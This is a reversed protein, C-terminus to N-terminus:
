LRDSRTSTAGKAVLRASVNTPPIDFRKLMLVGACRAKVTINPTQKVYVLYHIGRPHNLCILTIYGQQELGGHTAYPVAASRKEDVQQECNFNKKVSLM